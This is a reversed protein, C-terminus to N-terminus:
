KLYRPSLLPAKVTNKRILVCLLWERGAREQFTFDKLCPLSCGNVAATIKVTVKRYQAQPTHLNAFDQKNLAL